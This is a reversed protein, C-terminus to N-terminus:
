PTPVLLPNWVADTTVTGIDTTQTTYGSAGAELKYSFNVAPPATPVAFSLPLTTSYPALLPQATPLMLTYAGTTANVNVTAVEIAPISGVAQLARIVGTERAEAARAADTSGLTGSATRSAPSGAAPLPIPDDATSLRAVASTSVPVSPVVSTGRTPATVVVDYPSQNEDLYALTFEGTASPTTSRFVKGGKQVSVTVDAVGSEVFGVIGAATRLDATLVPKLGFSGNGRAVISRCADFDIVVDVLTNEQVTFPRILKLGSQAASPTQLPIELTEGARVVSHAPTNGTNASLVLRVQTYNGAALPATGLEELKGNTLDLLNIKKAPSIPVNTWGISNPEANASQHVRVREVTVFVKALDENGVKCSPADTMSFRVSGQPVDGGGGCAAVVALTSAALLTRVIRTTVLKLAHGGIPKM